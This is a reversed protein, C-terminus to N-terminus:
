WRVRNEAWCYPAFIKRGPVILVKESKVVVGKIGESRIVDARAMEVKHGKVAMCSSCHCQSPAGESVRLAQAVNKRHRQLQKRLPRIDPNPAITRELCCIGPDRAVYRYYEPHPQSSLSDKSAKHESRLMICLPPNKTIQDMTISSSAPQAVEDRVAGAFLAFPAMAAPEVAAQSDYVPLIIDTDGTEGLWQWATKWQTGDQLSLAEIATEPATFALHLKIGRLRRLSRVLSINFLCTAPIELSRLEMGKTRIIGLVYTMGVDVNHWGRSNTSTCPLTSESGAPVPWWPEDPHPGWLTSEPIISLHGIRLFLSPASCRFDPRLGYNSRPRYPSRRRWEGILRAVRFPQKFNFIRKERFIAITEEAIQRNVHLLNLDKFESPYSHWMITMYQQVLLTWVVDRLERPLGLLKSEEQSKEMSNRGAVFTRLTRISCNLSTQPFPNTATLHAIIHTFDSDKSM